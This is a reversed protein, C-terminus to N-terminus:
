LVDEGELPRPQGGLTEDYGNLPAGLTVREVVVLIQKVQAGEAHQAGRHRVRQGLAEVNEELAFIKGVLGVVDPPRRHRGNALRNQNSAAQAPVASSLRLFYISGHSKGPPFEM